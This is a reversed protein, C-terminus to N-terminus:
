VVYYILCLMVAFKTVLYYILMGPTLPFLENMRERAARLNDLDCLKKCLTILEVHLEYTYPSAAIQFYIFLM